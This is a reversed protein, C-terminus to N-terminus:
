SKALETEAMSKISQVATSVSNSYEVKLPIKAKVIKLKTYILKKIVLEKHKLNKQKLTWTKGLKVDNNETNHSDLSTHSANWM